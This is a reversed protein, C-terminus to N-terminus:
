KEISGESADTEDDRKPSEGSAGSPELAPAYGLSEIGRLIDVAQRLAMDRGVRQIFRRDAKLVDADNRDHRPTEPPLWTEPWSEMGFSAIDPRVGILDFDPGDVPEAWLTAIYLTRGSGIDVRERVASDGQTPSGVILVRRRGKMVAAFLESTGTTGEDVLLVAPIGQLPSNTSIASHVSDETGMGDRLRYLTTEPPLFLGAALDVAELGFGDAGRLDVILGNPLGNTLSEIAPVIAKATTPNLAEPRLYIIGGNWFEATVNTCAALQEFPAGEAEIRALPDVEFLLADVMKRRVRERNLPVRREELVRFIDEAPSDVDPCAPQPCLCTWIIFCVLGSQLRRM